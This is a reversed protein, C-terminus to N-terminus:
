NFVKSNLLHIRSMQKYGQIAIMNGVVHAIDTRIKLGPDYSRVILTQSLRAHGM